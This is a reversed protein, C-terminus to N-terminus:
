IKFHGGFRSIKDFQNTQKLFRLNCTASQRSGVFVDIQMPYFPSIEQVGSDQASETFNHLGSGPLQQIENPYVLVM